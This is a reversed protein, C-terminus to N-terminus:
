VQPSSDPAATKVDDRAGASDDLSVYSYVRGQFVGRTSDRQSSPGSPCQRWSRPFCVPDSEDSGWPSGRAGSIHLIEASVRPVELLVGSGLLSHLPGCTKSFEALFLLRAVPFPCMCTNRTSRRTRVDGDQPDSEPSPKKVPCGFKTSKRKSAQILISQSPGHSARGARGRYCDVVLDVLLSTM